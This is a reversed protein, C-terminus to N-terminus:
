ADRGGAQLKTHSAQKQRMACQLAVAASRKREAITAFRHSRAEKLRKRAKCITQPPDFPPLSRHQLNATGRVGKEPTKERLLRATMSSNCLYHWQKNLEDTMGLIVAILLWFRREYGVLPCM